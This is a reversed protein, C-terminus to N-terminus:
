KPAIQPIHIICYSVSFEIDGPPCDEKCPQIQVEPEQLHPSERLSRARTKEGHVEGLSCNASCDSWDSWYVMDGEIKLKM